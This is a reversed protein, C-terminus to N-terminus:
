PRASFPRISSTWTRATHLLEKIIASAWFFGYLVFYGFYFVGLAVPYQVSDGAKRYASRLLYATVVLSLFLPIYVKWQMGLATGILDFGNLTPLVLGVSTIHLIISYLQKGLGIGVLLLSVVALMPAIFRVPLQFVGFWGHDDNFFMDRHKWANQLSGRAWTVRQRYLSQPTPPYETNSSQSFVMDIRRGLRRLR